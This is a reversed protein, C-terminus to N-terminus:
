IFMGEVHRQRSAKDKEKDGEENDYWQRQQKVRGVEYVGDKRGYGM